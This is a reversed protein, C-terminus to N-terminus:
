WEWCTAMNTVSIYHRDSKCFATEEEKKGDAGRVVLHVHGLHLFSSSGPFYVVSSFLLSFGSSENGGLWDTPNNLDMLLLLVLWQSTNLRFIHTMQNDGCLFPSQSTEHPPSRARLHGHRRRDSRHLVRVEADPGIHVWDPDSAQVVQPSGSQLHWYLLAFLCWSWWLEAVSSWGVATWCQSLYSGHTYVNNYVYIYTNFSWFFLPPQM